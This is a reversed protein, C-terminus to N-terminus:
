EGNRLIEKRHGDMRHGNVQPSWHLGSLELRMGPYDRRQQENRDKRIEWSSELPRNLSTM